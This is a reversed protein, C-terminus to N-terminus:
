SISKHKINDLKSLQKYNEIDSFIKEMLFCDYYNTNNRLVFEINTVSDEYQKRRNTAEKSDKKLESIRRYQKSKLHREIPKLFMCVVNDYLTHGKIFLYTNEPTVGLKHLEEKFKNIQKDSIKDLTAIKKEVSKKLKKLEPQGKSSIDVQELLKITNSFDTITFRKSQEKEHYLSYIFLDYIISSYSKLFYVYDFLQEEDQFTAQVVVGHLSEAYCKFNEISYTYTQFIYPNENIIKSVDTHNQLLYDYDSDVCVIKAKGIGNIQKLLAVKGRDLSKWFPIDDENEVYVDIVTGKSKNLANKAIREYNKLSLKLCKM